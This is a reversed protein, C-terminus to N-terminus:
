SFHDAGLPADPGDTQGSLPGLRRHMVILLSYEALESQNSYEYM